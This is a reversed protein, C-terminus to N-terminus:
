RWGTNSTKAQYVKFHHTRALLQHSGFAQDLLEAYPLFGNAVLRLEGGPKLYHSAQSILQRSIDLTTHLGDHFPPNAIIADFRGSIASFVDSILLTGQMANAALTAESSALASASVDCLTLQTQPSLRALAVSLVGAGCGMDLVQGQIDSNFTSILLQSGADLGDRSFVGPLAKIILGDTIYSHWYDDLKFVPPRNLQGYYLSCRRASDIKHLSCFTQLVTIVSRVGSRNEGVVFLDCGTPLLSLLQTLQFQAEPKNKSWYYVLTDVGALETATALLGINVRDGMSNRLRQGHHFQPTHVRCSACPLHAPLDDQLDGAFLIHRHSFDDSHRLLVESAASMASM